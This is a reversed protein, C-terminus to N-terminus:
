WSKYGLERLMKENDRWNESVKVWLNLYVKSGLLREIDQRSRKGIEQLKMGSKGIIMGKHTKKECLIVGYVDIMEKNSRKEIKEILIGIGHPIEDHLLQMSKERIIESIVFWEPRDTMYDEPFYLPGEPLQDKIFNKVQELNKGSTASIRIVSDFIGMEELEIEVAENDKYIDSKNILAIKPTKIGKILDIIYKDGPGLKNKGDTMFVLTDMEQMAESIESSMFKSLKNKGKHIGPTDIFIIQAKDDTYVAKIKNRTTQPKDSMILVKEGILQNILTSKGVNPRGVVTVFGSRFDNKM